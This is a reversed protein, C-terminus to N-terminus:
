LLTHVDRGSCRPRRVNGVPRISGEMEEHCLALGVVRFDHLKTDYILELSRSQQPEAETVRGSVEYV